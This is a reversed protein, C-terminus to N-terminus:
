GTRGIVVVVVVMVVMLVVVPEGARGSRAGARALKLFASSRQDPLLHPTPASGAEM